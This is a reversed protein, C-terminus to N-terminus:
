RRGATREEEQSGYSGDEKQKLTVSDTPIQKPDQRNKPPIWKEAERSLLIIAKVADIMTRADTRVSM